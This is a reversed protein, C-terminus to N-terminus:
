AASMSSWINDILAPPKPRIHRERARRHKKQGVHVPLHPRLRAGLELGEACRTQFQVV